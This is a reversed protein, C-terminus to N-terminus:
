QKAVATAQTEAKRQKMQEFDMRTMAYYILYLLEDSDAGCYDSRLIGEQVFGCDEALKGYLKNFLTSRLYVKNLSLMNFAFDVVALLAEQAYARTNPWCTFCVGIEAKPVRHAFNKLAVDEIYSYISKLWVGFDFVQHNNWETQLQMVQM